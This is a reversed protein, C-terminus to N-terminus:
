GNHTGETGAAERKQTRHNMWHLAEELKTIALSNERCKFKSDQFFNLRSLIAKIVDEVFAGNQEKRENGRGLVCNQWRIDIGMGKVSGGVPNEGDMINNIELKGM